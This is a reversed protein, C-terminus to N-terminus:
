KMLFIKGIVTGSGVADRILYVGAPDNGAEWTIESGRKAGLDKVMEGRLNYIKFHANRGAGPISIRTSGRFPNPDASVVPRSVSAYRIEAASGSNGKYRYAYTRAHYNVMLVLLHVNDVPDYFFRGYERTFAPIGAPSLTEWSNQAIHYVYVSSGRVFVLADNAEDYSNLMGYGGAPLGGPTGTMTFWQNNKIDYYKPYLYLVQRKRDTIINDDSPLAPKVVTGPSDSYTAVLKWSDTGANYSWLRPYYYADKDMAYYLKGIPDYAGAGGEGAPQTGRAANKYEWQNTAYDYLWTDAPLTNGPCSWIGSYTAQSWAIMKGLHDMFEVGDWTHRSAPMHEALLMGPTTTNVNGCNYSAEPTPTYMSKWTNNAVDFALVDNKWGDTHGGGWLLFQHNTRDYTGGSYATHGDFQIGTTDLIMWTNEPLNLLKPNQTFSFAACACLLLIIQKM